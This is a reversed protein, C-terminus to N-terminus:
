RNVVTSSFNKHEDNEVFWPSHIVSCLWWQPHSNTFTRARGIGIFCIDLYSTLVSPKNRQICPTQAALTRGVKHSYWGSTKEGLEPVDSAAPENHSALTTERCTSEAGHYRTRVCLVKWWPTKPMFISRRSVGSVWWIKSRGEERDRLIM